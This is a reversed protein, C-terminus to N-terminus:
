IARLLNFLVESLYKKCCIASFVANTPVVTSMCFNAGVFLCSVSCDTPIKPLSPVLHCDSLTEASPVRATSKFISSDDNAVSAFCSSKIALNGETKVPLPFKFTAISSPAIGEIVPNEVSAFCSSKIALNGETRVPLPLRFTERWSNPLSPDSLSFM